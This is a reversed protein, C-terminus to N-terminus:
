ILLLSVAVENNQWISEKSHILQELYTYEIVFDEPMDVLLDVILREIVPNIRNLYTRMKNDKGM